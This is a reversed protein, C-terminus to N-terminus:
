DTVIQVRGDRKAGGVETVGGNETIYTVLEDRLFLPTDLHSVLDIDMIPLGLTNRAYREWPAALERIFSSCVLQFSRDLQQEIPIDNMTIGTVQIEKRSDGVEIRYRVQRSFHVFGRETHPESPLDVRFANDQVLIQLQEGTIWVIRLVDAFPMLNFWVGFPLEGGLPLGTRVVSGDVLALDVDYKDICCRAVLADAIFNALASEGAAFSNNVADPSLDPHDAVRGLSRNFLPRAIEVLPKVNEQEFQEDISHQASTTLRVNTVATANQRVTIDVEGLFRGLTGAQVIPIGNVINDVTLGYENLIHHTHGGVILHVSGRPISRALEVDGADRVTATGAGLSYGLHSLIILVDCIPRIAPLMNQIVRLPNIVQLNSDPQQRVAGPTTLGIIGVRIGKTVLLAAPYYLGTLQESSVLNASLVPFRADKRIAQALVDTGLDLDHNGLVSADIGAASYLRYGAHLAFSDSDDGMLEDFIAGVLDDGASMALVATDPDDQYQRRVERMRSVIRSLVPREGRMTFRVIHGHLDNIHLIKLRCTRSALDVRAPPLSLGDEPIIARVPGITPNGTFLFLECDDAGHPNATAKILGLTDTAM